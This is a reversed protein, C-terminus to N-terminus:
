STKKELSLQALFPEVFDCIFGELAEERPQTRLARRFSRVGRAVANGPASQIFLYMNVEDRLSDADMQKGRGFTLGLLQINQLTLYGFPRLEYGTEKMLADLFSLANKEERSDPEIVDM